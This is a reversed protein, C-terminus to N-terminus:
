EQPDLILKGRVKGDFVNQNAQQLARLGGDIKTFPVPEVLGKTLVEPFYSKYWWDRWDRHEEKQAAQSFATYVIEVGSPLETASPLVSAFKGGMPLLSAIAQQSSADGSATFLYKYPGLRRLQEVVDAAKYDVVNSAGLRKQRETDRPSATM